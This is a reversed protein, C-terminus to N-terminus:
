NMKLLMKPLIKLFNWDRQNTINQINKLQSLVIKAKTTLLHEKLNIKIM